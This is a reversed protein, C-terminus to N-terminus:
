LQHYLIKRIILSIHIFSSNALISIKYKWTYPVKTIPGVLVIDVRIGISKREDHTGFGSWDQFIIFNYEHFQNMILQAYQAGKINMVYELNSLVWCISYKIAAILFHKIDNMQTSAYLMKGIEFFNKFCITIHKVRSVMANFILSTSFRHRTKCQLMSLLLQQKSDIINLHMCSRKATHDILNKWYFNYKCPWHFHFMNYKFYWMFTRQLLLAKIVDNQFM